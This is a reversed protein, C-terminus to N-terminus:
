SKSLRSKKVTQPWILFWMKIDGAPSNVGPSKIFQLGLSAGPGCPIYELTGLIFGSCHFNVTDSGSSHSRNHWFLGEPSWMNFKVFSVRTLIRAPVSEKKQKLAVPKQVQNVRRRRLPWKPLHQQINFWTSLYTDFWCISFLFAAFCFTAIM